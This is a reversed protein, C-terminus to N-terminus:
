SRLLASAGRRATAEQQTGCDRPGSNQARIRSDRCRRPRRREVGVKRSAVVVVVRDGKARHPVLGVDELDFGFGPLLQEVTLRERDFRSSGPMTVVSCWRM